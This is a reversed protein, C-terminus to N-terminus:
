MKKQFLQNLIGRQSLENQFLLGLMETFERYNVKRYEPKTVRFGMATSEQWRFHNADRKQKKKSWMALVNLSM